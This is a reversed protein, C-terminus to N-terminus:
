DGMLIEVVERLTTVEGVNGPFIVYPMGPFKSEAGTMWVPIGPKIQGMVDAKKVHLAKTGVDSSTIGGKAVIFSPRVTLKGIISTVAASIKVSAELIQDKDETDLKLVQRSTYVAVTRGESIEKEAANIVREVEGDLGHEVKVLHANFEIFTIHRSSNQLEELQMTTKQVHSGVLVIGGNKNDGEILEERTLLPRDSVGGLVKTVAAASRFIFEKGARVARLFATMFIKVDVYDVANVIVKNFDQVAMLQGTIKEVNCARIDALDVCTVDEVRYKGGTKEECWETLDSAHYGFTKDKAFETMGAPVLTKGDKVYHINHITYRGGEKFFPFIIEGDYYKGLEAEIVTKLTETELPYHGRLTSDSRSILIFNKKLEKSVEAINGAMEEHAKRTQETTFGRSNTLIFFMSKKEEFAAKMTEKEWDTYVSIDHVTQVGTPDDDLVVIKKELLDLEEKLMGEVAAENPMQFSDLIEMGITKVERM